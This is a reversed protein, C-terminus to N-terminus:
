APVTGAAGWMTVSLTLTRDESMRAVQSVFADVVAPEVGADVQAEIFDPWRPFGDTGDGAVTHQVRVVPKVVVDVLGARLLYTRLFGGAEPTPWPKMLAEFLSPDDLNFHYTRWDSDIIGIGGGPRVVRAMENVAAQPDAVWQLVRECRCADFVDDDFPLSTADCQRFEAAIGLREARRRAEALMIESADVGTVQLGPRAAALDLVADGLGCGVDLISSSRALVPEIFRRLEVTEAWGATADMADLMWQADDHRDVDTFFYGGPPEGDTIDTAREAM